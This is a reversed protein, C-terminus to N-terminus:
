VFSVAVRRLPQEYVASDPREDEGERHYQEACGIRIDVPHVACHLRYRPLDEKGVRKDRRALHEVHDEAAPDEV